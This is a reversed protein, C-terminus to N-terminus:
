QRKKTIGKNSLDTNGIPRINNTDVVSLVIADVVRHLFVGSSNAEAVGAGIFYLGPWLGGIFTYRIEWIEDKGILMEEEGQKPYHQGTVRTGTSGAIFCGVQVSGVDCFGKLYVAVVFEEKHALTNIKKNTNTLIAIDIIEIGNAPYRIESKSKLNEDYFPLRSNTKAVEIIQKSISEKTELKTEEQEVQNWESETAYLLRQYLTTIRHPDGM